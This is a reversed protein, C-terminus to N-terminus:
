TLRERYETTLSPGLEREVDIWFGRGIAPTDTHAPNIPVGVEDGSMCRYHALINAYTPTTIKM